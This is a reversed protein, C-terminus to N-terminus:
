KRWQWNNIEPLDLGNAIIYKKNEKLKNKYKKAIENAKKEKITKFKALMEVSAIVLDFRSTKNRAQMDFPTTTSGNEIYGRVVFREASQGWDFLMDKIMEPYGHFNAIVPKNITFYKEFTKKGQTGKNIKGIGRASLEFITIVRVSLNSFEQLLYDVCTFVEKAMYDGIAMFVIDPNIKKLGINKVIFGDRLGREVEKTTFWRPELTKGAIIVNIQDESKLCKDIIALASTNDPPFYINAFDNEKQILGSIFSPNQHSFGNHDQRWGSSTLLYNLSSLGGRWSFEKSVKLFKAYQDAMSSVIEIFAEYSAFIGHRGTLIYGEIMGQLSHESLMEMVRGVPALDDDWLKLPWIFQRKTEEFVADLKNSYTEDPSFLRFNNKNLRFVDKLYKGMRRASSSDSKEVFKKWNPLKLNQKIGGGFANKNMGMRKPIAPLINKLIEKKPGTKKDFLEDIKYSKLWKELALLETKNEKVNKLPVQHSLCNGELKKGAFNNPGTWGKPTKLIIMPRRINKIKKYALELTKAMVEHDNKKDGEVILPEWGYGSFLDLLEKDSMRGFVTPGSIKYGNLHLIPLVAGDKKPSLFKNLHWATALPGTEAEGDGILPVAILNPNDLVAGFATSLSYGLEGGELIAGPAGPNSHSPFGYPWSFKKSIYALGERNLKAQPYFNKLTEELYLNAQLAPFGHGPGLLFLCDAHSSKILYNLHTYVFNIGPCTGWHGLLRPKIDEFKLPRELLFNDKLYIQSVSIYNALRFYKDLNQIDKKMNKNYLLVM